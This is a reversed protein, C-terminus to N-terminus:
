AYHASWTEGFDHSIKPGTSTRSSVAALQTECALSRATDGALQVLKELRELCCRCTIQSYQELPIQKALATAEEARNTAVLLSVLGLQYQLNAPALELAFRILPEIAEPSCGALWGYYGMDYYARAVSPDCHIAKRCLKFAAENGGLRHLGVSIELMLTTGLGTSKAIELYLDRALEYRRSDAYAAALAIRAQQSMPTALSARELADIADPTRAMDYYVLGLLEWSKGCDSNKSLLALCLAEAVRLDGALYRLWATKLDIKM